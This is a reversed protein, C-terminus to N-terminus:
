EGGRTGAELEARIRRVLEPVHDATLDRESIRFRRRGPIDIVISTLNGRNLRVRSRLWGMLASVMARIPEDLASGAVHAALAVVLDEFAGARGPAPVAAFTWHQTFSEEDKLWGSIGQLERGQDPTGEVSIRIDVAASGGDRPGARGARACVM